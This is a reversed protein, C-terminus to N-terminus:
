AHSYDLVEKIETSVKMEEFLELFIQSASIPVSICGKGLKEAKYKQVLGPYFKGTHTYGFLRKNLLVRKSDPRIVDWSILLRRKGEKIKKVYPSYLVLANAPLKQKELSGIKCKVPHHYQKALRTLKEKVDEKEVDIFIKNEFFVIQKLYNLDLKSINLLVYSVFNIAKVLEKPNAQTIKSQPISM